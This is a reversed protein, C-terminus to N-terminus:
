TSSVDKLVASVGILVKWLDLPQMRTLYHHCLFCCCCHIQDPSLEHLINLSACIDTSLLQQWVPIWATKTLWFLMLHGEFNPLLPRTSTGVGDCDSTQRRTILFASCTFFRSFSIIESSFNQKCKSPSLIPLLSYWTTQKVFGVLVRCRPRYFRILQLCKQVAALRAQHTCHM